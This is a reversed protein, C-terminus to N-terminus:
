GIIEVFDLQDVTVGSEKLCQDISKRVEEMLPACAEEFDDRKIKDSLDCDEMLCEVSIPALDNASLIKKAKTVADELKLKAKVSELPNCGNKKEFNASVMKM